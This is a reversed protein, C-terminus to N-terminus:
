EAANLSVFLGGTKNLERLHRIGEDAIDDGIMKDGETHLEEMDVFAAYKPATRATIIGARLLTKIFTRFVSTAKGLSKRKKANSLAENVADNVYRWDLGFQAYIDKKLEPSNLNSLLRQFVEWAWDEIKSREDEPLHPITRDAWIKGFKHHFAEDSMVFQTMTRLVPDNTNRYVSAFTGMAMGELVMQMGVLKKWVIPTAVLESLLERLVGGCPWVYGFRSMIYNTFGTVHRAEERAQNAAYEQAGPDLLIHCLSASLNLAAQEGHLVGSLVHHNIMNAFRIHDKEPIKDAVGAKFEIITEPPMLYEKTLDFPRSFDIYRSDMPDWFHDNTASIIKDFANTRAGYRDVDLMAPFDDPAVAKYAPDYDHNAEATM